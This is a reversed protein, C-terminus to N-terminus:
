SVAIVTEIFKDIEVRIFYDSDGYNVDSLTNRLMKIFAKRKEYDNQIDNYNNEWLNKVYEYFDGVRIEEFEALLLDNADKIEKPWLVYNFNMHSYDKYIKFTAEVGTVDNDLAIVISDFRKSLYDLKVDSLITGGLALSNAGLDNMSLVDFYGEVIFVLSNKQSEAYGYTYNTKNFGYELKSNPDNRYKVTDSKSLARSSFGITYKGDSNKMPILLRGVHKSLLALFPPSFLGSKEINGYTSKSIYGLNYKQLTAESIGRTKTLYNLVKAGEKSNFLGTLGIGTFENLTEFLALHEDDYENKGSSLRKVEFYEPYLEAVIAAASHYNTLNKGVKVLEIADGHGCGAFCNWRLTNDYKSKYISFSPSDDEHFPCKQLGVKLDLNLIRDAIEILPLDKNILNVVKM